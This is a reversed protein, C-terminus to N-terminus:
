QLDRQEDLGTRKLIQNFLDSISLNMM